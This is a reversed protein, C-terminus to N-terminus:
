DPVLGEDEGSGVTEVRLEGGDVAVAIQARAESEERCYPEHHRVDVRDVVDEGFAVM